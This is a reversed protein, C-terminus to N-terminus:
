EIKLTNKLLFKIRERGRGSKLFSEEYIADKKSVFAQYYILEWPGNTSTFKSKGSNHEKVRRRLDDTFGKYLKGNRQSKLIYV